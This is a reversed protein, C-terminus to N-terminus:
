VESDLGTGGTHLFYRSFTQVQLQHLRREVDGRPESDSGDCREDRPVRFLLLLILVARHIQSRSQQTPGVPQVLRLKMEHYGFGPGLKNRFVAILKEVVAIDRVEVKRPQLRIVSGEQDRIWHDEGIM